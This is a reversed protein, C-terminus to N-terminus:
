CLRFSIRLLEPVHKVQPMRREQSLLDVCEQGPIKSEYLISRNNGIAGEWRILKLFWASADIVFRIDSHLCIIRWCDTRRERGQASRGNRSNRRSREGKLSSLEFYGGYYIWCWGPISETAGFEWSLLPMVCRNHLSCVLNRGPRCSCCAGCLYVRSPETRKDCSSRFSNRSSHTDSSEHVSTYTPSSNIQLMMQFSTEDLLICICSRPIRLM